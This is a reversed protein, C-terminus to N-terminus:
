ANGRDRQKSVLWRRGLAAVFVFLVVPGSGPEPSNTSGASATFNSITLIGPEGLNDLTEVRFGFSEGITVPFQVMGPCPGSKCDGDASSLQFFTNGLLYGALDNGPGDVTSYSYQFQVLGFAAANIVLDTMGALGSGSNGGTLIISLGGDQSMASGDTGSIGGVADSNKLTFSSLSYAGLFAARASPIPIFIGSFACSLLIAIPALSRRISHNRPKRTELLNVGGTHTPRGNTIPRLFSQGPSNASM